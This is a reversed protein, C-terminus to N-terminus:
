TGDPPLSTSSGNPDTFYGTEPTGYVPNGDRTGAEPLPNDAGPAESPDFGGGGNRIDGSMDNVTGSSGQIATDIATSFQTVAAILLIACLGVLIIYETMGQGRRPTRVRLRHVRLRM